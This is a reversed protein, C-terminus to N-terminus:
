RPPWKPVNWDAMKPGWRGNQPPWNPWRPTVTPWRPTVRTAMKLPNTPWRPAVLEPPPTDDPRGDQPCPRGNGAAATGTPWKSPIRELAGPRGNQPPGRDAMKLIARDAMRFSRGTPWKPPPPLSWDAMKPAGLRGNPLHKTLWKTPVLDAMQYASLRGNQPHRTLWKTRARDAMKPGSGGPAGRRGNQPGGGGGRRGM